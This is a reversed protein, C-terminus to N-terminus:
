VSVHSLLYSAFMAFLAPLIGLEPGQNQPAQGLDIGLEAAFEDFMFDVDQGAGIQMEDPGLEAMRLSVYRRNAWQSLLLLQENSVLAAIVEHQPAGLLARILAASQEEATTLQAVLRENLNERNLEAELHALPDDNDAEVTYSTPTEPRNLGDMMMSVNELAVLFGRSIQIEHADPVQAPMIRVFNEIM